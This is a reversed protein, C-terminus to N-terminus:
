QGAADAILHVIREALEASVGHLELDVKTGAYSPEANGYGRADNYHWRLQSRDSRRWDDRTAAVNLIAGLREATRHNAENYQARNQVEALWGDWEAAFAPLFRRAVDRAIAAPDRDISVGIAHRDRPWENHDGGYGGRIEAKGDSYHGCYISFERGADDTVTAAYTGERVGHSTGGIHEAIADGVEALRARHPDTHTSDTV